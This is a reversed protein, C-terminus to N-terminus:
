LGIGHEINKSLESVFRAMPAGDMVDHDILVTFNMIERIVVKDNIVAPKKLVSSIGFCVPHISIPIFWGNIKGMMGISTIAVNGMKQYLIGPHKLMIKWVLRRFFGPLRYYVREARSSKKHLVIDNASIQEDKSATLRHTIEEIGLENVKKLLVPFPVKEGNLEKEVLFSVNVDDFLVVKRNGKLFAASRKHNQVTTGIAKILWASYSINGTNKRYQRIKQRTETVDIELMAAIHHKKLGLECVDITAIRSRSFEQISFNNM